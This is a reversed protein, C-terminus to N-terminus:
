GRQKVSAESPKEACGRFSGLRLRLARPQRKGSIPQADHIEVEVCGISYLTWTSQVARADTEM